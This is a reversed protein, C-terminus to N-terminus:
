AGPQPADILGRTITLLCNDGYCIRFWHAFVHRLDAETPQHLSNGACRTRGAPTEHDEFM